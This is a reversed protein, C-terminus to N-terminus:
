LSWDVVRLTDAGSGGGSNIDVIQVPGAGPSLWTIQHMTGSDVSIGHVYRNYDVYLHHICCGKFTGHLAESVLDVTNAEIETHGSISMTMSDNIAASTSFSWTEGLHNQPPFMMYTLPTQWTVTFQYVGDDYQDIGLHQIETSTKKFHTLQKTHGDGDAFVENFTGTGQNYSQILRTAEDSGNHLMHWTDDSAIPYFTVTGATTFQYNTPNPNIPNGAGDTVNLFRVWYTCGDLLGKTIPVTLGSFDANWTPEGNVTQNIRADVSTPPMQFSAQDMPESFNLVISQLTTAVGTAGNVPSASVLTPRTHDTQTRFSFVYPAALHNGTLDTAGTGITITVLSDQPLASHNLRLTLGDWETWHDAPEPSGSVANQTNEQNMPESFTIEIVQSGNVGTEGSAPDTSVVTPPTVDAAATTTFSAAHDTGLANGHADQCAGLVTMTYSTGGALLTAPTVVLTDGRWSVDFNVTGPGLTVNAPFLNKNMPESFAVWFPGTRSVGSAGSAPFRGNITPPTTDRPVGSDTGGSSSCSAIFLPAALLLILCLAVPKAYSM